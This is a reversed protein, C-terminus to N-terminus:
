KYPNTKRCPVRYMFIVFNLQVYETPKSRVIRTNDIQSVVRETCSVYFNNNELAAHLISGFMAGDVFSWVNYQKFSFHDTIYM